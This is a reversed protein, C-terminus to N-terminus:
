NLAKLKTKYFAYLKPTGTTACHFCIQSPVNLNCTRDKAERLPDLIQCQRSSHHLDFVRRLDPTAKATTYAPLQLELSDGLSPVEMHLLYLELFVFSLFFFVYLRIKLCMKMSSIFMLKCYKSRGSILLYSNIISNEGRGKLLNGGLRYAAPIELASCSSIIPAKRTISSESM